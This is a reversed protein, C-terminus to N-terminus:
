IYIYIYIYVRIYIYPAYLFRSYTVLMETIKDTFSFDSSLIVGLIKMKSVGDILPPLPFDVRRHYNM